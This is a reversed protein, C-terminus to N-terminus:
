KVQIRCGGFWPKHHKLEYYGPSDTALSKAIRKLVKELGNSTRIM